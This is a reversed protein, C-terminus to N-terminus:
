LAVIKINRKRSASERNKTGEDLLFAFLFMALSPFVLYYGVRYGGSLAGAPADGSIKEGEYTMLVAVASSLLFPFLLLNRRCFRASVLGAALTLLQVMFMSIFAWPIGLGPFGSSFWYDSFWYQSVHLQSLANVNHESAVYSWYYTSWSQAQSLLPPLVPSWREYYFPFILSFLFFLIGLFTLTKRLTNIALHESSTKGLDSM